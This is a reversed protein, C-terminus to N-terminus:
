KESIRGCCVSAFIKASTSTCSGTVPSHCLLVVLSTMVTVREKVPVRRPTPMASNAYLHPTGVASLLFRLIDSLSM